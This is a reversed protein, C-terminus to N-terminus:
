VRISKIFIWSILMLFIALAVLIYISQKDTGFIVPFPGIMIIGGGRIQAETAEGESREAISQKAEFAQKLFGAFILFFGLFILIFGTLIIEEAKM